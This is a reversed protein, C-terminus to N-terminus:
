KKEPQIIEIQSQKQQEKKAEKIISAPASLFVLILISGIFLMFGYVNIPSFILGIILGLIPLCVFWNEVLLCFFAILMKWTNDFGIEFFCICFILICFYGIIIMPLYEYFTKKEASM